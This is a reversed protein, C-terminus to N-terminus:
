DQYRRLVVNYWKMQKDPRVDETVWEELIKLGIVKEIIDRFTNSTVDLFFRGNREGEFDGSKYSIYIVGGEVIADRMKTLLLPMQEKSIHLLSACAWIGDYKEKEKLEMFDM